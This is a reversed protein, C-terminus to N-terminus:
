VGLLNNISDFCLGNGFEQVKEKKNLPLVLDLWVGSGTWYELILYERSTWKKFLREAAWLELDENFMRKMNDNGWFLHVTTDTSKTILYYSKNSTWVKKNLAEKVTPYGDFPNTQQANSKTAIFCVFLFLLELFNLCNRLTM